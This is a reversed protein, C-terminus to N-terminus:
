GYAGPCAERCVYSSSERVEKQAEGREGEVEGPGEERHVADEPLEEAVAEVVVIALAVQCLINLLTEGHGCSNDFSISGVEVVVLVAQDAALDEASAEVTEEEEGIEVV